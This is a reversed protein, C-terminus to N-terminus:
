RARFFEQGSNALFNCIFCQKNSAGMQIRYGVFFLLCFVLLSLYRSRHEKSLGSLRVDVTASTWGSGLCV